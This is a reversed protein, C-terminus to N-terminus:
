TRLHPRNNCVLYHPRDTPRDCYHASCFHSFRHSAMRASSERPGQFGHIVYPDLDGWPFLCHQPPLPGNYLIPVSQASSHLIYVMQTTSESPGFSTHTVHPPVNDCGSSYSQITWPRCRHPRKTLNSPGSTLIIIVVLIGHIRM